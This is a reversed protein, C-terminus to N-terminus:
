ATKRKKAVKVTKKVAKVTKKTTKKKSVVKKRKPMDMYYDFSTELSLRSLHVKEGLKKTLEDFAYLDKGKRIYFGGQLGYESDGYTEYVVGEKLFLPSVTENKSFTRKQFEKVPIKGIAEFTISAQVPIWTCGQYEGISDGQANQLRGYNIRYTKGLLRDGDFAAYVVGQKLELVSLRKGM